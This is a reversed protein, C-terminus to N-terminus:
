DVDICRCTMDMKDIADVCLPISGVAFVVITHLEKDVIHAVEVGDRVGVCELFKDGIEGGTWVNQPPRVLLVLRAVRALVRSKDLRDLYSPDIEGISLASRASGAEVGVLRSRV